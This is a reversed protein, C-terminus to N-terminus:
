LREGFFEASLLHAPPKEGTKLVEAIARETAATAICGRADERVLISRDARGSAGRLVIIQYEEVSYSTTDM